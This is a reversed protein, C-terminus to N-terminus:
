SVGFGGFWFWTSTRSTGSHGLPSWFYQPYKIIISKTRLIGFHIMHETFIVFYDDIYVLDVLDGSPPHEQAEQDDQQNIFPSSSVEQYNNKLELCESFTVHTPYFPYTVMLIGEFGGFPRKSSTRSSGSWGFQSCFSQPCERIIPKTM